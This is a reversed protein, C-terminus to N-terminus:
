ENVKIRLSELKRYLYTRDLQTLESLKSIKGDAKELMRTFYIREFKERAEKYPLSLDIEFKFEKSVIEPTYRKLDDYTIFEGVSMIVLREIINKLERVNGPWHYSLLSKKVEEDFDRVKKGYNQSFLNLYYKAIPLIDEKRERLPP